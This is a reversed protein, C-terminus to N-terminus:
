RLIDLVGEALLRAVIPQTLFGTVPLEAARQYRRLARRTQRDFTGDQPGPDLGMGALRREIIVRTFPPLLLANEQARAAELDVQPERPGRLDEIRARAQEAFAGNPYANLYDNYAGITDSRMAIDWAARDRAQAATRRDAEIQNLRDQAVGSFLGDPFERLYARLGVEDRGSGTDRWFARDRREEAQQRARAEAELQAARQAGQQALSFVQARDLYGSLALVNMGQWARIASRTAAGFIGDIGRPSYGLITLDRQIARREDRTLNLAVEIREPTNQLDDIAARAQDAHAGRPWASLYTQYAVITDANQAVTWDALDADRQLEFDAPLFDLFPPNFGELQVDERRAALPGITVGPVVLAPVIDAIGPGPGRLLSVGQPVTTEVPLGPSFGPANSVPFGYDAVAVVAGGQRQGAVALVSALRVGESEVTAYNPQTANTGMLWVGHAANLVYGSFVIVVREYPQETLQRSLQSLAANMAGASVDTALDVRFGARELSQVTQLVISAGRIGRVNDYTENAIILAIGTTAHVPVLSLILFLSASLTRVFM